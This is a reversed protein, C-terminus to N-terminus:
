SGLDQSEKLRTSTKANVLPTQLPENSFSFYLIFKGVLVIDKQLFLHFVSSYHQSVDQEAMKVIQFVCHMELSPMYKSMWQEFLWNLLDCSCM